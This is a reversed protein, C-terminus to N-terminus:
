VASAPDPSVKKKVKRVCGRSAGARVSKLWSRAGYAYCGRDAARDACSRPGQQRRRSPRAAMDSLVNASAAIAGITVKRAVFADNSLAQTDRANNAFPGHVLILLWEVAGDDLM